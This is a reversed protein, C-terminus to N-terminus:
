PSGAELRRALAERGDLRAYDAADHNRENRLSRDAGRQLLLTVSEESGYRAALMLPTNGNPARADIQAGQEVLMRVPLVSPSSAAYHLPTWGPRNIQAGRAILARMAEVNARLAAMMLPTEGVENAADIRVQPQELLLEFSKRSGDRLALFLGNQGKPDLTNPDLGRALLQRLGSENDVGIAQFFDEYAGARATACALALLGGLFVRRPYRGLIKLKSM